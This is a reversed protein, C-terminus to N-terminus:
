IHILSLEGVASGYRGSVWRTAPDGDFAASPTYAPGLRLTATADSASTSATVSAVGDWHLVQRKYVDLDEVGCHRALEDSREEGLVVRDAPEERRHCGVLLAVLHVGPRDRICM